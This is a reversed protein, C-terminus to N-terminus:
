DEKSTNKEERMIVVAIQMLTKIVTYLELAAYMFVALGLFVSLLQWCPASDAFVPNEGGVAMAIVCGAILVLQALSAWILAFILDSYASSGAVEGETTAWEKIRRDGPLALALVCTTFCGGLSIAAFSLGAAAIESVKLASAPLYPVALSFIVAMILAGCLQTSRLILRRRPFIQGRWLKMDNPMKFAESM